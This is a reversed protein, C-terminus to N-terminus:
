KYEAESLKHKTSEEPPADPNKPATAPISATAPKRDDGFVIGFLLEFCKERLQEPCTEAIKAIEDIKAKADAFNFQGM